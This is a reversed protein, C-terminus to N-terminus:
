TPAEFPGLPEKLPSLYSNIKSSVFLKFKPVGILTKNTKPGGVQSRFHDKVPRFKSQSSHQIRYRIQLKDPATKAQNLAKMKPELDARIGGYLSCFTQVPGDQLNKVDTWCLELHDLIMLHGGPSGRVGRAGRTGVTDSM